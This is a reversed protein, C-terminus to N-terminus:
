RHKEMMVCSLLASRKHTLASNLVNLVAKGETRRLAYRLQSSHLQLRGFRRRARPHAEAAGTPRGGHLARSRV